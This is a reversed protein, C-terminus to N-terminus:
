PNFAALEKADAGNWVRLIGDECGATVIAGDPTIAASYVYDPCGKFERVANGNAAAHLFVRKDGSSSLINDQLGVFSLSTVQKSYTAITRTQEGTEVNWVKIANDAGASALLTSDAKWTIDMVHHTHGEYSQVHKGTEVEFVKAFRDASASALLKGDPSFELGYVTDSHANPFQRVLANDTLNWLTIQGERSAEGGGAALQKGDPSFALSLVRDIFVSEGGDAAPGLTASLKWEPFVPRATFQTPSATLIVSERCVMGTLEGADASPSLTDLPKGDTANWLRIIGGAPDTTVALAGHSVIGCYRSTVTIAAATKAAELEAGATAAETESNAHQQKRDVVRQEARGVAATAFDVTKQASQQQMMATKHAETATKEAAEATEVAKKAEADDPKAVLAEKAAATAAVATDLATKTPEVAAVAKELEAKAKTEAEKQATVEKESEDVKTKLVAARADRVAKTNEAVKLSRVLALDQNLIALQKPEKLSWLLAQGDSQVIVMRDAASHLSVSTVAAPLDFVTVRTGDEPKWLEAKRDAAITLLLTEGSSIQQVPGSESKIEQAVAIVGTEAPISLLRVVGDAALAAVKSGTLEGSFATTASALPESRNLLTGDALLSAQIRGDTLAAVIMPKAASIIQVATVVQGDTDIPPRAEGSKMDVVTLGPAPTAYVSLLGDASAAWVAADAPAAVKGTTSQLDRKWLKVERYGSTAITHGAQDFAIAHVFDLHAAPPYAVGPQTAAVPVPLTPDVLQAVHDKAALDYISVRGGRGAAIFRGSSDIDVAYVAKLQDSIPQWNMTKSPSGSGGVAGEAIWLRLIGLQQPTLKKAQVDNPWPPMAPEETRAAVKFLLSEDPKGPVVSVGASGGKMIAASNELILENESTAKNHCAICCAELIPYVDRDFEVPRGLQVDEAQIPKEEDANISQWSCMVGVLCFAAAQLAFRSHCPARGVALKFLDSVSNM